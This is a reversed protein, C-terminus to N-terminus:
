PTVGRERVARERLFLFLPLAFCLGVLVTAPIPLWWTRMGIRRGEGIAWLAFALFSVSFGFALQAAPLSEGWHSLYAPPDFGHDIVFIAVMTNPVLFGLIALGLLARERWSV